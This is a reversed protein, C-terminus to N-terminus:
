KARFGQVTDVFFKAHPEPTDAEIGHGLNMVHGNHAGAQLIKETEEKIKDLPGDRLLKPDLNGQLALHDPMKARVDAFDVTYDLSVCNVGTTALLDLFQGDKSHIDPAMYIIVPTTPHKAKIAEVVRKQYPMAFTEYQDKPLHGAWSDFVQIVQAGQDVQYCAYDGINDALKSLIGHLLEPNEERMKKVEAFGSTTGTKGEVLYSALTFPLGVFGLVTAKNGVEERLKGLVEGVFPCATTADFEGKGKFKALDAETRIPPISIAGGESIQFEVGMAPLPTLIDSFLIVGDVGYARFPQLSIELAAEPIESRERFTPYKAVLDRYVKMHRGAQRMMWVPTREVKEGRAARLLLPEQETAAAAAQRVTAPRPKAAPGALATTCTVCALACLAIRQVAM